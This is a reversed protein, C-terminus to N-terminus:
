LNYINNSHLTTDLIFTMEVKKINKEADSLRMVLATSVFIKEVIMVTM